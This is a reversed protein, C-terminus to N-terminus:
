KILIIKYYSHNIKLFYIGTILNAISLTNPGEPNSLTFTKILRGSADYLLCKNTIFPQNSYSIKVRGNTIRP